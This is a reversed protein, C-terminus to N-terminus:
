LKLERISVEPDDDVPAHGARRRRPRARRVDFGEEAVRQVEKLPIKRRGNVEVTKINGTEIADKLTTGRDIRLLQAAQRYSLWLPVPRQRSVKKLPRLEDRIVQIIDATPDRMQAAEVMAPVSRPVEVEVFQKAKRDVFSPAPLRPDVLSAMFQEPTMGVSRGRGM